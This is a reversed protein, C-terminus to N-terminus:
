QLYEGANDATFHYPGSKGEVVQKAVKRVMGEITRQLSRIGADFGLPRIIQNWVAEDITIVNDLLGAEKAVKPLIFDQGIIKKEEDSYAPMEIIELRDLVSTAINGTNNATTIFFAKSLDFPYDVFRDLFSWNQEPDLLEVLVGMVDARSEVAVRDIEDLLIVTNNYGIDHIAKMIRGPEGDQSKSRGRLETISGLGGFPIRIVQRGLSEAISYALSTKGSGALGVFALVSSKLKTGQRTNLILMALYELIREKVIKLGFHNKDLIQEARRLDLVDQSSKNFPLTTIFEVRGLEREFEVRYGQSAILRDLKDVEDRLQEALDSPLGAQDIQNRLNGNPTSSHTYLRASQDM